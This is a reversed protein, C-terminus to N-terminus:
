IQCSSRKKASFQLIQLFSNRRIENLYKLIPIDCFLLTDLAHLFDVIFGLKDVNWIM